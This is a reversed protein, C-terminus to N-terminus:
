KKPPPTGMPICSCWKPSVFSNDKSGIAIDSPAVVYTDENLFIIRFVCMKM